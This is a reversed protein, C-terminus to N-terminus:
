VSFINPQNKGLTAGLLRNPWMQNTLIRVHNWSTCSLCRYKNTNEKYELKKTSNLSLLFKVFKGYGGSLTLAMNLNQYM